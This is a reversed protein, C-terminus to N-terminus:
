SLTDSSTEVYQTIDVEDIQEKDLYQEAYELYAGSELFLHFLDSDIHKDEKMFNMIKLVQSLKKAKKYPRDSATLAEFIDAVVMIKATVPMQDGTLKRPYGTGDIKEHHGGAIEPVNKLHSPFPLQNLMIITQVIHDNIKYREEETLTGRSIKLNYLEGKNYLSQPTNLVLGLNEELERNKNEKRTFIHEIKDALLPEEIPLDIKEIQEKRKQEEWAIGLRDDLTRTWTTAAIEELREIKEPAMFEGGLNCEAIFAFDEDLKTWKDDRKKQAELITKGQALDELYQIQVDRKLVEFRMRVEHIRDYISELKTAKDVVYEPTTVKGCDHLWSAIHLAEWEDESLDFDAFVGGKSDCAKQALMKTLEPVRQCHGGTYPSKSDIAGAILKIFSNLLEKQSKLMKRSELTVAAFSSFADLLVLLGQNEIDEIQRGPQYVLGLVGIGENNRTWLPFIVVSSDASLQAPMANTPLIDAWKVIKRKGLQLIQVLLSDGQLAFSPLMNTCVHNDEDNQCFAPRLLDGKEKVLYTFVLEAEGIRKTEKSIKELLKDFDQENALTSTLSFFHGIAWEMKNVAKGLAHVEKISSGISVPTQVFEFKSIRQTEKALLQLPTSIKRALFWIIPISLLIILATFKSIDTQQQRAKILIENEPSIVVLYLNIGSLNDLRVTSGLWNEDAFHVKYFPTLFEDNKVIHSLINSELSSLHTRTKKNEKTVFLKEADKYATVMYKDNKKEVLVLESRPSIQHKAIIESLRFLTVDGGIINGSGKVRYSMTMGMQQVFHFLYPSTVVEKDSKLANQYWPRIRPDYNTTEVLVDGLQEMSKSFYFRKLYRTGDKARSINDVVAVAGTPANFQNQLYKSHIPRVIFFDGNEYGVQLGSLSREQKLAKYFLPVSKLREELTSASMIPTEALIHITQNLTATTNAYTLALEQKIQRFYQNSSDYIIESSKWYVFERMFLGICIILATFLITITILIRFRRQPKPTM